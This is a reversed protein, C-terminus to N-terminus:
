WSYEPLDLSSVTVRQGGVRRDLDAQFPFIVQDADSSALMGPRTKALWRNDKMVSPLDEGGLARPLHEHIPKTDDGLL